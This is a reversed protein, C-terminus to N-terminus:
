SIKNNKLKPNPKTFTTNEWMTRWIHSLIFKVGWMKYFFQALFKFNVLWITYWNQVFFKFISCRTRYMVNANM